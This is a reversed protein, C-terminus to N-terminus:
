LASFKLSTARDQAPHRPDDESWIQGILSVSMSRIEDATLHCGTGREHARRMKNLANQTGAGWASTEDAM